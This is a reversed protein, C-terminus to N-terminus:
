KPIETVAPANVVNIEASKRQAVTRTKKWFNANLTVVVTNVLKTKLIKTNGDKHRTIPGSPSKPLQGLIIL